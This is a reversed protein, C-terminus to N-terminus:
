KCYGKAILFAENGEEKTTVKKSFLVNFDDDSVTVTYFKGTESEKTNWSNCTITLDNVKFKKSVLNEEKAIRRSIINTAEVMYDTTQKKM